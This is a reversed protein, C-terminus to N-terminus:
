ACRLLSCLSAPEGQRSAAKALGNQKSSPGKASGNAAALAEDAPEDAEQLVMLIQAIMKVAEDVKSDPIM